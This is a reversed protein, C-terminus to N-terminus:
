LGDHLHRCGGIHTDPSRLKTSKNVPLLVFGQIEEPLRPYGGTV